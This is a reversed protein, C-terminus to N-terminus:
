PETFVRARQCIVSILSNKALGSLGPPCPPSGQSVTSTRIAGQDAARGNVGKTLGKGTPTGASWRRRCRRRDLAFYPKIDLLPTDDLCDLRDGLAPGTSGVLRVVCM